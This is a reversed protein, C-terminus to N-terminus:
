VASPEGYKIHNELADQIAQTSEGILMMGHGPMHVAIVKGHLPHELSKAPTTFNSPKPIHHKAENSLCMIAMESYQVGYERSYIKKWSIRKLKDKFIPEPINM